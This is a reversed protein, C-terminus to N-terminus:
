KIGTVKSNHPLSGTVLDSPNYITLGYLNIPRNSQIAWAGDMANNKRENYDFYTGADLIGYGM